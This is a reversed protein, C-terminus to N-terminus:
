RSVPLPRDRDSRGRHESQALRHGLFLSLSVDVVHDVPGETDFYPNPGSTVPGNKRRRGFSLAWHLAVRRERFRYALRCYDIIRHLAEALASQDNRSHYGIWWAMSTPCIAKSGTRDCVDQLAAQLGPAAAPIQLVRVLDLNALTVGPMSWLFATAGPPRSPSYASLEAGLLSLAFM